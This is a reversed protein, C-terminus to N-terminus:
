SLENVLNILPYLQNKINWKNKDLNINNIFIRRVKDDLLSCIAERLGNVDISVAIGYQNDNIIKKAEGDPLSALIPLGINIYDYLKAPICASFYEKSLSLFAVDVNTQMYIIYDRHSMRDILRINSKDTFRLIPKYNQYKGIFVAEVGDLGEVAKALIEPSQPWGFNGGYAIRLINEAKRNSKEVSEIWGFHANVLRNSLFSYKKHLAELYTNCCTVVYDANILYNRETKERSAHPKWDYKYGNMKAHKVPDHLHAIYKCNYLKKLISALKLTGIEGVSTAILLDEQTLNEKKFFELGSSVWRDLYDEAMGIRTLLSGIRIKWGLPLYTVEDNCQLMNQDTTSIVKVDYGEKRLIEYTAKAITGGSSYLHSYTAMLVYIRM